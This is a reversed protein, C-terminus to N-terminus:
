YKEFIADDFPTWFCHTQQSNKLANNVWTNCTHLMSYSGNAEYFADNSGYNANTIIPIGNNNTDITISKLIYAILSKYNAESIVIRKCAGNEPMAYYYTAHIATTGFGFAANFATSVKLQAWTPTNLYFGKDGWGLAIYKNNTDTAIVKPYQLIKSWDMNNNRTPLVIDTHVGNTKIFIAISKIANTPMANVTIKGLVFSIGLYLIITALLVVIIKILWKFLKKM